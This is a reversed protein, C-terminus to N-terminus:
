VNIKVANNAISKTVFHEKPIIQTIRDFMGKYSTVGQVSIPPLTAKKFSKATSNNANTNDAQVEVNNSLKASEGGEHMEGTTAFKNLLTIDHKKVKDTTKSQYKPNLSEALKRKKVM